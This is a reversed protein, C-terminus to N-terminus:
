DLIFWSLQFTRRYTQGPTPSHAAQAARRPTPARLALMEGHKAGRLVGRGTRGGVQRQTVARGEQTAHQLNRKTDYNNNKNNNNCKGQM